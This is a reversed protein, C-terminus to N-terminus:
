GNPILSYIVDEQISVNDVGGSIFGGNIIQLLVVGQGTM